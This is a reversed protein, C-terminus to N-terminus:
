SSAAPTTSPSAADKAGGVDLDVLALHSDSEPTDLVLVPGRSASSWGSPATFSTGAALCLSAALGFVKFRSM